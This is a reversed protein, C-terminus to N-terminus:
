LKIGNPLARSLKYTARWANLLGTAWVLRAWVLVITTHVIIVLGPNPSKDRIEIQHVQVTVM